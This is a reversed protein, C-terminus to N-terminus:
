GHWGRRYSLIILILSVAEATVIALLAANVVKWAPETFPMVVGVLIMGVLLVYYAVSAGRRAIARDREDAPAQGERRARASLIASAILVVIGQTGAIIGFPLLIGLLSPEGQRLALGLWTFYIGYAVLMAGLTLWALKERYAM